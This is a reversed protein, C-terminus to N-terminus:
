GNLHGLALLGYYTYECDLTKDLWNACFGGRSSWLSDVFDLCQQKIKDTDAGIVGLTHLATATSLLDPTTVLPIALFGGKDSCQGFLWQVSANDIRENLYHLVMLAAATAPTSVAQVNPENAYGGDTRRLSNVCEILGASDPPEMNLDQYVGLAVFCGYATGHKGGMCNSYGGNGSRYNEIGRLIGSRIDEEIPGQSLDAWCRALCALHILDLGAGDGFKRLYGIIRNRDIDADLALLTELGFVTYYLDSGASRGRFGGDTNIQRSIFDIVLEASDALLNAAKSAAKLMRRRITM